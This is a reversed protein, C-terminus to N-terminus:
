TELVGTFLLIQLYTVTDVGEEGGRWSCHKPIKLRKKKIIIYQLTEQYV